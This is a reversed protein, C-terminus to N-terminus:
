TRDLKIIETGIQSAFIFLYIFLDYGSFVDYMRM